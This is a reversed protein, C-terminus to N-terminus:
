KKYQSAFKEKLIEFYVKLSALEEFTTCQDVESIISQRVAVNQTYGYLFYTFLKRKLYYALTLDEAVIETKDLLTKGDKPNALKNDVWNKLNLEIFEAITNNIYANLQLKNSEKSMEMLEHEAIRALPKMMPLDLERAFRIGIVVFEDLKHDLLYKAYKPLHEFQFNEKNIHFEM